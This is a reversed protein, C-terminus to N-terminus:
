FCLYEYMPMIRSKTAYSEFDCRMLAVLESDEFSIALREGPGTNDMSIESINGCLKTRMREDFSFDFPSLCIYDYYQGGLM